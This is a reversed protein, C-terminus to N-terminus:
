KAPLKAAVVPELKEAVIAAVRRSGPETFHVVDYLYEKEPPIERALDILLVGNERAKQRISDNFRDFLEKYQSYDIHMQAAQVKFGAGIVKDPVPKLRSAMTMLVPTVKRAQCCFIFTQLNMAFQEVLKAQDFVVKKGRIQAFEDQAPSPGSNEKSKFISRASYELNRLAAALNPIYRDRMVKIANAVIEQNIDIIVSRASNKHWYSHEYLLIVLDNINHMMIVIQPELPFVKNLLVDISHLSDNGSRAANYANIKINLKQELLTGSLCPFRLDEAVYRCETTSAGLFALTIDPNKHRESPIIFGNQDIRLLYKKKVLNDYFLDQQGALFYEKMTPRYERLQIARNPLAFNFGVGQNRYALVKEAAYGALLIVIILLFAYIKKPNREFWSGQKYNQMLLCWINQIGILYNM